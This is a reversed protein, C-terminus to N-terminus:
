SLTRKVPLIENEYIWYIIRATYNLMSNRLIIYHLTPYQKDIALVVYKSM